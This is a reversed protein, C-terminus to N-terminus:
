ERVDLGLLRALYLAQDPTVIVGRLQDPAIRIDEINTRRFDCKSIVARSFDAGALNSGEFVTGQMQSGNFYAGRMDCNLFSVGKLTCEQLQCHDMLSTDFVTRIMHAFNIQAGTFRSEHVRVDRWGSEDLNANAADVVELHSQQVRVAPARLLRTRNLVCEDLVVSRGDIESGAEFKTLHFESEDGVVDVHTYLLRYLTESKFQPKTM